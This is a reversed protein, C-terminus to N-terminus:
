PTSAIRSLRQLVGTNQGLISGRTIDDGPSLCHFSVYKISNWARFMLIESTNDTNVGLQDKQVSCKKGSGVRSREEFMPRPLRLFTKKRGASMTETLHRSLRSDTRSARLDRLRHLRLHRVVRHVRHAGVQHGREVDRQQLGSQLGVEGTSGSGVNCPTFSM